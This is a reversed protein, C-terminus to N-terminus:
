NASHQWITENLDALVTGLQGDFIQNIRKYGGQQRFPGENILTEDLVVNAKVQKALRKLWDQQLTTFAHANIMKQVAQDVRQEYPVLADGLAAQRVFGLIRAAIEHNSKKAWASTLAREDFGAAELATSLQLLDARTLERPRQVVTMLAPLKNGQEKIFAAFRELYDEPKGNPIIGAAIVKQYEDHQKRSDM